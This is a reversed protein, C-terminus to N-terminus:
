LVWIRIVFFCYTIENTREFTDDDNFKNESENVDVKGVRGIITIENFNM